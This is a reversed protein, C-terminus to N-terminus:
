RTYSQKTHCGPFCSGGNESSVYNVPLMWQGFRVKTEILHEGSSAHVNHCMVCSRSGKGNMHVFHLNRDGDRFNTAGTTAPATLLEGDHCEWCLAFSDPVAPAYIGRPFSSILLYNNESGHPKHCVVCGDDRVPAHITSASKLLEQINETKSGDARTDQNHCKLCLDKGTSLLDLGKADVETHEKLDTKHCNGCSGSAAAHIVKGRLLDDHCELCKPDQYTMGPSGAVTGSNLLVM